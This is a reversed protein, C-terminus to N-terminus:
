VSGVTKLRARPHIEAQSMVTTQARFREVLSRVFPRISASTVLVPAEGERAAQEFKDRVATMFESLKSPAMALTRDEGQGIISEAFAQEWKASLAILPLYGNYSTNQACIQRALRARVHEVITSPNRSFALAEAVGELITSLDRISVREALLLQLVRQIGSVTIQGPVIDKVLEGQEKPLDKLLKQTEGYSLLDSMNAKLLETLHTSLVTAADVVTYGKLSAEEKFNADVWTAPLGFTPETTHIGPVTVQEGAPDMVMFQNPWIRGSGADVEKIKIVYTNAELQVNDLIRVAPMVFGMEIALSRRLAKIQETLRDTGDPGNVLPLLAYGLEIKLDDIRLAAAIPEEASAAAAAAAAAEPAVAAQAAEASVQAKRKGAKFALYGAGGGLALFPLTPIGPLAALVLMVAAAMGLAQPYGSLQGMMAKDASGTIGAKSVLLGAATSVILAPIQTVLGDGVTLLTYTHGAESFSLGQQMVGIVIGGIVNIFVVLLGAIADGRVFKSAGDMAGFFGSEDELEKRRSKATAEDILGASLDADIAMQKGPMSDLQFRAAVEAIRGSGKTIVVFNVIILITFVIIGIVFNGGMVFGGFAEIVHGAAATGEHGHSLILRTSAMNLSLRLMTSILLVTPFSSFELPAQIFLATMLILISLTISIALFLDLIIAPLPLILVVLITLVGIALALDGRRLIAIMEKVSPIGSGSGQGVTTDTM